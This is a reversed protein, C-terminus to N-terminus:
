RSFTKAHRSTTFEQFELRRLTLDELYLGLHRAHRSQDLVHDVVASGVLLDRQRIDFRRDEALDDIIAFVVLVARRLLNLLRKSRVQAFTAEMILPLFVSSILFCNLM